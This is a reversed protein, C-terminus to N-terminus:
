HRGMRKRFFRVVPEGVDRGTSLEISDARARRLADELESRRRVAADAWAKRVAALRTDVDVADGTEVDRLTVLGARPLEEEFPDVVRVCVVDHRSSMRALVRQWDEDSTSAFDSIVFVMSRRRLVRLQEELVPALASGRGGPPAAIVERVVRLIHGHGKKPALHLGPHDAFLTLGVQDHQFVAVYALLACFEAAVERKTREGSGFDMSRSTDVVFQLTLQREEVFTKVYPQGTRATVNWDISRVEDGPQYERVEEFEIGTGRFTSKYAGSLMNSVMRHTRVQIQRVRAMLEPALVAGSAPKKTDAQAM